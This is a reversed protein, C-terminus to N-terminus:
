RFMKEVRVDEDAHSVLFHKKKAHGLVLRKQAVDEQSSTDVSGERDLM